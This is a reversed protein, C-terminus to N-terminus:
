KAFGLPVGHAMREHEKFRAEIENMTQKASQASPDEPKHFVRLYELAATELEREWARCEACRTM